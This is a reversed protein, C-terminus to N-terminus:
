KIIDANLFSKLKEILNNNEKLKMLNYHKTTRLHCSLNLKSKIPTGCECIIPVNYKNMFKEKYEPDAYRERFNNYKVKVSM